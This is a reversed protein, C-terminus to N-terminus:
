HCAQLVRLFGVALFDQSKFYGIIFILATLPLKIAIPKQHVESHHRAHEVRVAGAAAVVGDHSAAGEGVDPQDVLQGSLGSGLGQM